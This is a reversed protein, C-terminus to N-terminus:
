HFSIKHYLQCTFIFMKGFLSLYKLVSQCISINQLPSALQCSEQYIYMEFFTEKIETVYTTAIYIYM